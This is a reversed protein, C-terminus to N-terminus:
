VEYIQSKDLYKREDKSSIFQIGQVCEMPHLTTIVHKVHKRKEPRNDEVVTYNKIYDVGDFTVLDEDLNLMHEDDLYRVFMSNDLIVNLVLDPGGNANVAAIFESKTM